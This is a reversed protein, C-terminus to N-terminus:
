RTWKERKLVLAGGGCHKANDEKEEKGTLVWGRQARHGVKTGWM